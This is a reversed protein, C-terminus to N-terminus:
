RGPRPTRLRSHSVRFDTRSHAPPRARRLPTSGPKPTM